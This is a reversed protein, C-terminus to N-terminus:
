KLTGKNVAAYANARQRNRYAHWVFYLIIFVVVVGIAGAIVWHTWEFTSPDIQTSGAGGGTATGAAGGANADSETKAKDEEKKIEEKVEPPTAKAAELAWKVSIAEREVNRRTWGKGYVPFTKLGQYFSLMLANVRKIHRVKDSLAAAKRALEIAGTKEGVALARAQLINARGPGANIAIDLQTHDVGTPQIAYAVKPAYDRAYIATADDLTLNKIDLTPYVHAAIGYKTGKLEGQGIVGSTWNGRDRRDNGWGGEHRFVFELSRRLNKQM